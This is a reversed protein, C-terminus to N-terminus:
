NRFFKELEERSTIGLKNFIIKMNSKVTSEAIFLQEGIQRNSYRQAALGAIEAERPTLGHNNQNRIIKQCKHLGPSISKYLRHIERFFSNIERKTTNYNEILSKITSYNEVFPIYLKDQYALDVAEKFFTAAKEKENVALNASAMYIYAHIKPFPFAYMGSLGLMQGSVGMFKQYNGTMYLYKAHLNFVYSLAVRNVTQELLLPNKIWSAINEPMGLIFSLITNAIDKEIKLYKYLNNQETQSLINEIKKEYLCYAEWNGQYIAIRQLYMCSAMVLSNQNRSEAMYIAKHCLIESSKFDGM